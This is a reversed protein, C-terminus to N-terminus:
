PDIGLRIHLDVSADFRTVSTEKVLAMAEDLQYQMEPDVKERAAAMKKSLKAM